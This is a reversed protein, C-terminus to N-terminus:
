FVRQKTRRSNVLFKRARSRRASIRFRYGVARGRRSTGALPRCDSKRYLSHSGENIGHFVHGRQTWSMRTCPNEIEKSAGYILCSFKETGNPDGDSEIVRSFSAM